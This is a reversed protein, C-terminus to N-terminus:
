FNVNTLWKEVESSKENVYGKDMKGNKYHAIAPTGPVGKNDSKQKSDDKQPNWANIDNWVDAEIAANLTYIKKGDKIQKNLYQSFGSKKLNLCHPCRPQTYFVVFEENNKIKEKLQKYSILNEKVDQNYTDLSGKITWDYSSNFDEVSKSNKLNDIITKWNKEEVDKYQPLNKLKEIDNQASKVLNNITKTTNNENSLANSYVYYIGGGILAIIFLISVTTIIKKSM